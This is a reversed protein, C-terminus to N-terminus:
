TASSTRPGSELLQSKGIPTQYDMQLTIEQNYSDNTNKLRSETFLDRPQPHQQHLQQDATAATSPSSASSV